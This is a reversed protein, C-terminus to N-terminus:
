QKKKVGIKKRWNKKCWNKKSVMKKVNQHLLFNSCFFAFIKPLFHHLFNPTFFYERNKSSFHCM